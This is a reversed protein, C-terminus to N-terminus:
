RNPVIWVIRIYTTSLQFVLTHRELTSEILNYGVLEHETEVGFHRLFVMRTNTLSM